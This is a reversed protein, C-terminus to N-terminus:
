GIHWASAKKLLLAVHYENRHKTGATVDILDDFAALGLTALLAILALVRATGLIPPNKGLAGFLYM